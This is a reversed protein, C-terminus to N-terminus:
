PSNNGDDEHLVKGNGLYLNLLVELQQNLRKQYYDKVEFIENVKGEIDDSSIRLVEMDLYKVYEFVYHLLTSKSDLFAPGSSYDSAFYYSCLKQADDEIYTKELPSIHELRLRIAEQSATSDSDSPELVEGEGYKLWEYNVNFESAIVRLLKNSANDKGNEINSLHAQSIDIKAAFYTQSFHFTNKRLQKIRAGVTREMFFCGM